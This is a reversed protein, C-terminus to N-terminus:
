GFEVEGGDDDNEVNNDAITHDVSGYLAEKQYWINKLHDFKFVECKLGCKSEVLDNSGQGENILYLVKELRNFVKIILNNLKGFNWTHCISRVLTNNNCRKM